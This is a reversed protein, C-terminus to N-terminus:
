VDAPGATDGTNNTGAESSVPGPSDKIHALKERMASPIFWLHAKEIM